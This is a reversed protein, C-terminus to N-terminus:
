YDRESPLEKRPLGAKHRLKNYETKSLCITYASPFKMWPNHLRWEVPDVDDLIHNGTYPEERSWHVFPWPLDAVSIGCLAAMGQPGGPTFVAAVSAPRNPNILCSVHLNGSYWQVDNPTTHTKSYVCSSSLQRVRLINQRPPKSDLKEHFSLRGEWKVEFVEHPIAAMLVQINETIKNRYWETYFDYEKEYEKNALKQLVAARNCRAAFVRAKKIYQASGFDTPVLGRVAAVPLSTDGVVIEKIVRRGFHDKGYEVDTAQGDVGILKPASEVRGQWDQEAPTGILNYVQDSIQDGYRQDMWDNHGTPKCRWLEKTSESSVENNTLPPLVLPTYVGSKALAGDGVLVSPKVVMEGTYSLELLRFQNKWFKKNILDALLWVWLIEDPLLEAIRSLSVVRSQYPVLDTRAEAYLRKNEENCKVGVLHYPFRHKEARKQFDRDPRRKMGQQLVNDHRDRDTLIVINDGNKIGISFYSHLGDPTRVLFISIGSEPQDRIIRLMSNVNWVEWVSDNLKLPVKSGEGCLFQHAELKNISYFADRQLQGMQFPNLWSRVDDRDVCYFSMAEEWVAAKDEFLEKLEPTRLSDRIKKLPLLTKQLDDLNDLVQVGTFKMDVVYSEVVGYLLMLATIGTPDWQTTEAIKILDKQEYYKDGSYFKEIPIQAAEIWREIIHNALTLFDTM